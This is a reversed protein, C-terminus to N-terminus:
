RWESRKQTRRFSPILAILYYPCIPAEIDDSWLWFLPPAHSIQDTPFPMDNEQESSFLSPAGSLSLLAFSNEYNQSFIDDNRQKMRKGKGSETTDRETKLFFTTQLHRNHCPCKTSQGQNYFIAICQITSSHFWDTTVQWRDNNDLAKSVDHIPKKTQM